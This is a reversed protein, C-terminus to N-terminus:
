VYSFFKLNLKNQNKPIPYRIMAAEEGPIAPRLGKWPLGYEKLRDTNKYPKLVM